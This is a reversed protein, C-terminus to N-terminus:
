VEKWIKRAKYGPQLVWDFGVLGERMLDELIVNVRERTLGIDRQIQKSAKPGELVMAYVMSHTRGTQNYTQPDDYHEPPPPPVPNYYDTNWITQM